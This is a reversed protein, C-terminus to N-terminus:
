VPSHPVRLNLRIGRSVGWEHLGSFGFHCYWLMEAGLYMVALVCLLITVTGFASAFWAKRM